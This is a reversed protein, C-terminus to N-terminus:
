SAPPAELAGLIGSVQAQLAALASIYIRRRKVVTLKDSDSEALGLDKRQRKRHRELDDAYVEHIDSEDVCTAEFTDCNDRYAPLDLPGDRGFVSRRVVQCISVAIEHADDLSADLRRADDQVSSLLETLTTQQRVLRAICDEPSVQEALPVNEHSEM